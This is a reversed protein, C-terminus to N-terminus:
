RLAFRAGLSFLLLNGVYGNKLQSSAEYLQQTSVRIEGVTRPGLTYDVGGGATWFISTNWIGGNHGTRIRYGGTGLSVVPRWKSERMFVWDGRLFAEWEMPTVSGALSDAKLVGLGLGMVLVLGFNYDRGIFAEGVVGGKGNFTTQNNFSYSYGTYSLRGGAILVNNSPGREGAPGGPTFRIQEKGLEMVVWSRLGSGRVQITTQGPHRPTVRIEARTAMVTTGAIAVVNSDWVQAEFGTLPISNGLSDQPSVTIVLEAPVGMSLFTGLKQGNIEIYLNNGHQRQLAVGHTGQGHAAAATLGLALVVVISHRVTTM